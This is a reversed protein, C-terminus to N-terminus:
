LVLMLRVPKAGRMSGRRYAHLYQGTSQIANWTTSDHSITTHIRPVVYMYIYQCDDRSTHIDIPSACALPLSSHATEDVTEMCASTVAASMLAAEFTASQVKEWDVHDGSQTQALRTEDKWRL